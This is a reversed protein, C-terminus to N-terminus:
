LTSNMEFYDVSHFGSASTCLRLVRAQPREHGEPGLDGTQVHVALVGHQAEDGGLEGVETVQLEGGLEDCGYHTNYNYMM